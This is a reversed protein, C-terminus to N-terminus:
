MTQDVVAAAQALAEVQTATAAMAGALLELLGAL